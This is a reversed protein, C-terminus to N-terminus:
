VEIYTLSGGASVAGGLQICLADNIAAEFKGYPTPGPAIGRALNMGGTLKTFPTTTIWTFQVTGACVIDYDLVRIKKGSVGAVVHACAAAAVDIVAFKPVVTAAADILYDSRAPWAAGAASVPIAVAASIGVNGTVAVGIAGGAASVAIPQAAITVPIPLESATVKVDGSISAIVPLPLDGATVPVEGSVNVVNVPLPVGGAATVAAATVGSFTADVALASSVINVGAIDIPLPVGGAATVAAATTGSFSANVDLASGTIDVGGIDVRQTGGKPTVGSM